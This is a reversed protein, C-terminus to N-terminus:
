IVTIHWVTDQKYQRWVIKARETGTLRVRCVYSSILRKREIKKINKQQKIIKETLTRKTVPNVNESRVCELWVPECELPFIM